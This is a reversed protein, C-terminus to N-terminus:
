SSSNTASSVNMTLFLITGPDSSDADRSFYDPDATRYAAFHHEGSAEPRISRFGSERPRWLIRRRPVVNTLGAAEVGPLHRVKELLQTDFNVIQEPKSYQDGRLFYTMTLVNKTTCGSTPM